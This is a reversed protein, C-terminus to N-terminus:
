SGIKVGGPRIAEPSGQEVTETVTVLGPIQPYERLMARAGKHKQRLRWLTNPLLLTSVVVKLLKRWRSGRIFFTGFVTMWDSERIQRPTYYRYHIYMESVHPLRRHTLKQRSSSFTIVRAGHTRLGGRPARHHLVSIQPNYIMLAGTQRIRIGLDGDAAQGKQFAMDFLGSKLLVEKRILTNNTPFVSSLRTTPDNLNLAGPEDVSGSSTDASFHQLNRLHLEILNPAIEDDDDLFLVYDGQAAWLGTNRSLCQGQEDLYLVRLPLGSFEAQLGTERNAKETQDIVLIELPPITQTRLQGLLTRLYPYRDLTAILVTVRYVTAELKVPDLELQNPGYRKALDPSPASRSITRGLKWLRLPNAYGNLAARFIGWAAMRRGFRQYVFRVEDELPLTAPATAAASVLNPTHRIIVGSTYYRLGMELGAMELSTFRPNPGGMERLVSAHVLCARLSLRWSSSEIAPSADLNEVAIPNVFDLLRPRGALGLSLGAHWVDIHTAALLREVAQLDPQGLRADWILVADAASTTTVTQVAQAVADPTPKVLVTEGLTWQLGPPSTQSLLLLTIRGPSEPMLSNM